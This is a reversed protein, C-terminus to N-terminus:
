CYLVSVPGIVSRTADTERCVVLAMGQRIRERSEENLLTGRQGQTRQSLDWTSRETGPCRLQHAIRSISAPKFRGRRTAYCGITESKVKSRKAMRSSQTHTKHKLPRPSPICDQTSADFSVSPEDDSEEKKCGKNVTELRRLNRETLPVPSSFCVEFSVDEKKIPVIRSKAESQSCETDALAKNSTEQLSSPFSDPTV